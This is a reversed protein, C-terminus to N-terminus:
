RAESIAPAIRSYCQPCSPSGQAKGFAIPSLQNLLAKNATFEISMLTLRPKKEYWIKAFLPARVWLSRGRPFFWFRMGDVTLVSFGYMLSDFGYICSQISLLLIHPFCCSKGIRLCEQTGTDKRRNNCTIMGPQLKERAIDFSKM